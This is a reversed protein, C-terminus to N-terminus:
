KGQALAALRSAVAPPVLHSVDGRYHSIERVFRSSVFSWTSSTPLLVTKMGGVFLNTHAMQMEIEFDGGTRVGKVIFDAGVAKAADVVLGEFSRVEVGALHSTSEIIMSQREELNFLGSTKSPNYMTGVVVDGFLDVATVIVDLHGLHLPDFSGPFFAKTSM